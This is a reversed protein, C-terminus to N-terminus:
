APVRPFCQSCPGLGEPVLERHTTFHNLTANRCMSWSGPEDFLQPAHFLISHDSSWAYEPAFPEDSALTGELYEVVEFRVVYLRPVHCQWDWWLDLGNVGNVKIDHEHLWRLGEAEYDEHPYLTSSQVDQTLRIVAVKHPNGKVNRPSTNWADVLMGAKFHAAHKPTWARRTVTKAGALLAPTTWGFSIIM